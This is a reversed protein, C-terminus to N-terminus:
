DGLKELLAITHGWPLQGVPQQVIQEHEPWTQAFGRMYFLNSRSFGKMTPFEARLDEALRTVVATGWAQDSQRNLIAEGISWYM